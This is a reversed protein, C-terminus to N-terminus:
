PLRATTLRRKFSESRRSRACAMRRCAALYGFHERAGTAAAERAVALAEYAEAATEGAFRLGRDDLDFACEMLARAMNRMADGQACRTAEVATM